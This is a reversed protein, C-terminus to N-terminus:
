QEWGPPRAVAYVGISTKQNAFEKLPTIRWGANRLKEMIEIPPQEDKNGELVLFAAHSSSAQLFTRIPVRHGGGYFAVRPRDTVILPDTTSLSRIWEGAERRIKKDPRIPQLAQPLTALLLLIILGFSFTRQPIRPWRRGFLEGLGMVGRAGYLYGIMVLPILHRKSIALAGSLRIYGLVIWALMFIALMVWYPKPWSARSVISLAMLFFLLPHAARIWHDLLEWALLARRNEWAIRVFRKTQRTHAEDSLVEDLERSINDAGTKAFQLQKSYTRWDASGEKLLAAPSAVWILTTVLMSPLLLGMGQLVGRLIRRSRFGAYLACGIGAPILILGDPRITSSLTILAGAYLYLGWRNEDFARLIVWLFLAFLFWFLPERVVDMSTAVIAPSICYFFPPIWAAFRGLLARSILYYPIVTLIGFTVPLARAATVWDGLLPQLLAILMPFLSPHSIRLGRWLDGGAIARAGEVYDIADMNVVYSAMLHPIRLSLALGLLGGFILSDIRNWALSANEPREEM